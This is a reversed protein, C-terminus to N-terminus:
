NIREQKLYEKMQHEMDRMEARKKPTSFSSVSQEKTFYNFFIQTGAEYKVENIITDNLIVGHIVRNNNFAIPENGKYMISGFRTNEALFGAKVKGDEMLTIRPGKYLVDGDILFGTFEPPQIEGGTFVFRGSKFKVGRYTSESTTFLQFIHGQINRYIKTGPPFTFGLHHFSTITPEEGFEQVLIKKCSDSTQAQNDQLCMVKDSAPIKSCFKELDNKCTSQVRRLQFAKKMAITTLVQVALSAKKPAPPKPPEIKKNQLTVKEGDFFGTYIVGGHGVAVFKKLQQSWAVSTFANKEDFTEVGWHIGDLSYVITAESTPKKRAMMDSMSFPNQGGVAIALKGNWLVEVFGKSTGSNSKSWVSGDSSTVILGRPGVAIFKDNTYTIGTLAGPIGTTSEKWNVGDNSSFATSMLGVGVYSKKGWAVAHMLGSSNKADNWKIADSSVMVNPTGMSVAIIKGNAWILNNMSFTKNKGGVSVAWNTGDNSTIIVGEGGIILKPSLGKAYTIATLMSNIGSSEERWSVGDTSTLILGNHGVAVFQTEDWVVSTLSLDTGSSQKKWSPKEITNNENASISTAFALLLLIAIYHYM